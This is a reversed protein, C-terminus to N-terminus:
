EMPKHIHYEHWNIYNPVINKFGLSSIGWTKEGKNEKQKNTEFDSWSNPDKDNWVLQLLIVKLEIFFTM